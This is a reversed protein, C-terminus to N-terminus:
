DDCGGRPKRPPCEFEQLLSAPPIMASALALALARRYRVRYCNNTKTM